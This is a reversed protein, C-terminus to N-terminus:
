KKEKEEEDKWSPLKWSPHLTTIRKITLELLKEEIAKHSAPVHKMVRAAKDMAYSTETESGELVGSVLLYARLSPANFFEGLYQRDENEINEYYQLGVDRKTTLLVLSLKMAMAENRTSPSIREETDLTKQVILIAPGFNNKMLETYVHDMNVQATYDTVDDYVPFQSLPLGMESQYRNLLLQNYAEKNIKKSLLLMRYGDTEADVRAPFYNYLYIMGGTSLVIISSIRLWVANPDAAVGGVGNVLRTSVAMLIVGALVELLYFFLPFAIVGTASAKGIDKPSLKTEGTLGDYKSIGLKTKGTKDKMLAIGFVCVSYVLYHGAKGGLFHGLELFISNLLIGVVLSLIVVLLKLDSSWDLLIPRIVLFGVLLAIAIMGIYALITAFDNRKM